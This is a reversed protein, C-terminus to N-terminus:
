LQAAVWQALDSLDDMLVADQLQLQQLEESLQRRLRQVEVFDRSEPGYLASGVRMGNVRSERLFRLSTDLVAWQGDVMAWLRRVGAAFVLQDRIAQSPELGAERIIDDAVSEVASVYGDLQDRLGFPLADIIDGFAQRSM